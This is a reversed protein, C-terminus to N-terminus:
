FQLIVHQKNLSPDFFLIGCRFLDASAYVLKHNRIKNWADNMERSYHIDDLVVISAAHLKPAMQEFYRVTPEYRHNADVFVFDIKRLYGLRSSLTHDINGQVVTINKARAFEFTLNSLNTLATSGEFTTVHSGTKRALYLANIGLSTGLEVITSLNFHAIIRAYFSSFKKPTLSLKAIQNISRTAPKHIHSGFDEVHISRRDRLLKGRLSEAVQDDVSDGKVVKTYFDYFFPSHLSHEDVADLWYSIFSRLQFIKNAM